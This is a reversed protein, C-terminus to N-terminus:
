IVVNWQYFSGSHFYLKEHFDPNEVLKILFDSNELKVM